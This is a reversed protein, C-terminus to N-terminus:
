GPLGPTLVRGETLNLLPRLPAVLPVQSVDVPSGVCPSRPSRCTRRDAATSCPSSGASAGASSTCRGGAPTSRSRRSRRHARGRRGLARHRPRPQPVVGRRVRRPVDAPRGRRLARGALLRPAPRLLARARGAADGAAGPRRARAGHGRAPLPLGRAARGRRDPHAADAAPRGARRLPGQAGRQQGGVVVQDPKPVLDMAAARHLSAIAPDLGAVFPLRRVAPSRCRMTRHVLCSGHLPGPDRRRRPRASPATAAWSRVCLLCAIRRLKGTTPCRRNRSSRNPGSSRWYM